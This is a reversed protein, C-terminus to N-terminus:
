RTEPMMILAIEPDHDSIEPDHDVLYDFPM